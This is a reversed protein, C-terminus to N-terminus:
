AEIALLEHFMSLMERLYTMCTITESIAATNLEAESFLDTVTAMLEQMYDDVMERHEALWAKQEARPLQTIPQMLEIVQQMERTLLYLDFQLDSAADEDDDDLNIHLRTSFGNAPMSDLIDDFSDM